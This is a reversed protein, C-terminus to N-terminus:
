EVVTPTKRVRRFQKSLDEIIDDIGLKKGSVKASHYALRAAAYAESGALMQTDELLEQLQSVAQLIPNLAEYLAIDRRAEEVDLHRPMVDSHQAAMDLSRMTFTQTKRGMKTLQRREQTSLGVLFPLQERITKLATIISEIEQPTLTADITQRAM